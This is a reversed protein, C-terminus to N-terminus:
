AIYCQSCELGAAASRNTHLKHFAATNRHPHPVRQSPPEGGFPGGFSRMYWPVCLSSQANTLQLCHLVFLNIISHEGPRQNWNTAWSRLCRQRLGCSVIFKELWKETLFIGYPIAVLLLWGCFATTV